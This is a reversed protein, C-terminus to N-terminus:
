IYIYKKKKLTEVRYRFLLSTCKGNKTKLAENICQSTFQEDHFDGTSRDKCYDGTRKASSVDSVGPNTWYRILMIIVPNFTYFLRCYSWNDYMELM